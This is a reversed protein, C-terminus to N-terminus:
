LVERYIEQMQIAKNEWLYAANLREISKEGMQRRLDKDEILLDIAKALEEIVYKSNRPIIKVGCDDTVIDKVGQHNLCIIPLGNAMAELVVNGSTDRLSTFVFIDSKQYYDEMEKYPVIGRNTIIKNLNHKNIFGSYTSLNINGVLEINIKDINKVYVLSKIFLPLAKIFASNGAWLITVRENPPKKIKKIEVKSVGTELMKIIKSENNVIKKIVKNTEDNAVLISKAKGYANKLYPSYVWLSNIIKRGKEKIYNDRYCDVFGSPIFQGGGIPGVIFNANLKWLFGPNKFGNYTLHQIIDFDKYRNNMKLLKYIGYQWITYHLYATYSNKFFFWGYKSPLDYYIFDLNNAQLGELCQIEDEIDNKNHLRTIVVVKNYKSLSLAWNWGVKSESGRKPNCAYASLLIKL